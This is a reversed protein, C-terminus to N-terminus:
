YSKNLQELDNNTYWGDAKKIKLDNQEKKFEDYLERLPKGKPNQEKWAAFDVAEDKAQKELEVIKDLAARYPRFQMDFKLKECEKVKAELQLSVDMSHEEMLGLIMMRLVETSFGVELIKDLRIKFEESVM